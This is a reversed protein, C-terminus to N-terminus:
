PATSERRPSSDARFHRSPIARPVRWYVLCRWGKFLQSSFLCPGDARADIEIYEGDPQVDNSDRVQQDLVNFRPNMTWRSPCPRTEPHHKRHQYCSACLRAIHRSQRPYGLRTNRANEVRELPIAPNHAFPLCLIASNNRDAQRIAATPRCDLCELLVM